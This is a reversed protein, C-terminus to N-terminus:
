EEVITVTTVKIPTVPKSKEGMANTEVPATAINNVIEMGATVKGFIVYNKPLPYDKHMIFFQSGNTNPGANAMAITGATYVGDFTEDAFTYGPGGTGDGNPDGGQIMFNNIVRHFITGNYFAKKALYVFNNVTVPTELSNLAVTIKGATTDLVAKYRRTKDLQMTPAGSQTTEEKVVPQEPTPTSETPAQTDAQPTPVQQQTTQQSNDAAINTQTNMEKKGDKKNSFLILVLIVIIPLILIATLAPKNM